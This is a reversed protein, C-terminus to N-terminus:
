DKELLLAISIAIVTPFQLIGVGVSVAIGISSLTGEANALPAFTDLNLYAFSSLAFYLASFLSATLILPTKM